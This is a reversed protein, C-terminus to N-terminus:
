TLWVFHRKSINRRKSPVNRNKPPLRFIATHKQRTSVMEGWSKMHPRQANPCKPPPTQFPIWVGEEGKEFGVEVFGMRVDVKFDDRMSGGKKKMQGNKMGFVNRPIRHIYKAGLIEIGNNVM